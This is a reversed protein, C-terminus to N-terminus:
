FRLAAEPQKIAVIIGSAEKLKLNARIEDACRAEHISEFASDLIKEIYISEDLTPNILEDMHDDGMEVSMYIHTADGVFPTFIDSNSSFERRDKIPTESWFAEDRYYLNLIYLAGLANLLNEVSAIKNEQARNHKIKQYAQKWASGSTGRKQAKHLPTLVSKEQSFYINPSTIQIKKKDIHWKDALLKICDTDFYPNRDHGTTTDMLKPPGGLSAYLEKSITEIEIACRIILNGIYLSYVGRQDDNFLIYNTLNLVESELSKYVPWFTNM